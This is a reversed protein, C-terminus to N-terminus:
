KCSECIGNLEVNHNLVIFNDIKINKMPCIEIKMRKHCKICNIYHYHENLMFYIKGDYDIKKLFIEKELFLEIIRYITAKDAKCNDVIVKITAEKDYNKVFNYIEERYKTNKIKKTKFIEIM